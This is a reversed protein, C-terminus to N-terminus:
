KLLSKIIFREDKTFKKMDKLFDDIADKFDEFENVFDDSDLDRQPTELVMFDLENKDGEYFLYNKDKNYFLMFQGDNIEFEGYGHQIDGYWLCAGYEHLGVYYKM